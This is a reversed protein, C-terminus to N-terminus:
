AHDAGGKEIRYGRVGHAALFPAVRSLEAELEAVRTRLHNITEHACWACWSPLNGHACRGDMVEDLDSM